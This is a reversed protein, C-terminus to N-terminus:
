EMTIRRIRIVETSKIEKLRLSGAPHRMMVPAARPIIIILFAESSLLSKLSDIFSNEEKFSLFSSTIISKEWLILSGKFLRTIIESM